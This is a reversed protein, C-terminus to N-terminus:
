STISPSDLSGTLALSTGSARTVTELQPSSSSRLPLGVVGMRANRLQRIRLSLDDLFRARRGGSGRTGCAGDRISRSRPGDSWWRALLFLRRFPVVLSVLVPLTDLFRLLVTRRTLLTRWRRDSRCCLFQRDDLPLPPLRLVVRRPLPLVLLPPLSVPRPFELLVLDLVLALSPWLSDHVLSTPRHM